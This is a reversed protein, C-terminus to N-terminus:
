ETLISLSNRRHVNKASSFQEYLWHYPLFGAIIDLQETRGGSLMMVCYLPLYESFLMLHMTRPHFFRVVWYLQLNEEVDSTKHTIKETEYNHFMNLEKLQSFQPSHFVVKQWSTTSKVHRLIRFKFFITCVQWPRQLSRLIKMFM